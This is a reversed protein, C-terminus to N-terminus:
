GTRVNTTAVELDTDPAAPGASFSKPQSQGGFVRPAGEWMAVEAPITSPLTLPIHQPAWFGAVDSLPPAVRRASRCSSQSTTLSLQSVSVAVCQYRAGSTFLPSAFIASM